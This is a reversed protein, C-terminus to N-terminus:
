SLHFNPDLIFLNIFYYSSLHISLIFSKQYKIFKIVSNLTKFLHM